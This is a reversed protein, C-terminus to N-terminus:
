FIAESEAVDVKRQTNTIDSETVYVRQDQIAGEISAGQVDQTYQVPAVINGMAGSSASVSGGGDFQQQQIKKIQMIGTTLIMATTAAGMAIQGWITMWANAPNMASTWASIIGGLMNMTVAAIQYKKQQEFGERTNEDQQDALANMVSGAAQFAAVALQAYDQWQAGGEKIKQGLNILGNSMTDFATAWESSLGDGIGTISDMASVVNETLVRLSDMQEQIVTQNMDVLTSNLDSALNQLNLAHEAELASLSQLLENYEAQIKASEEPTLGETFMLNEKEEMQQKILGREKAYEKKLAALDEDYKKQALAKERNYYEVIDIERQNLARLNEQHEQENALKRQNAAIQMEKRESAYANKLNEIRKQSAQQEWKAEIELRKTAYITTINLKREEYQEETIIGERRFEKLEKLRLKEAQRNQELEQEKNKLGDVKLKDDFQKLSETLKKRRAIRENAIQQERKNIDELFGEETEYAKVYSQLLAVRQKAQALYRKEENKASESAGNAELEALRAESHVVSQEWQALRSYANRMNLDIKVTQHLMNAEMQAYERAIYQEQQKMGKVYEDTLEKRRALDQEMQATIAAESAGEAKMREIREDMAKLEAKNYYIDQKLFTYHSELAANFTKYRNELKTLKKEQEEASNGGWGLWSVLDELYAILTGIAVIIAGIGTSILAKRFAKTAVTAAGTAVTDGVMAGELATTSAAAAKEATATATTTTNFLKAVVTSNSIVDVLRKFSKIGKEIGAIGQTFAMLAQLKKITELADKNEIGMLTMSATLTQFGAVVVGITSTTNTMIQGFDMASASLEQTQERLEHSINAAQQLVQSYEVSGKELNLLQDQLAKLEQRMSKVSKEANKTDIDVVKKKVAM